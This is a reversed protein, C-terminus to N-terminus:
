SKLRRPVLDQVAHLEKITVYLNPGPEGATQERPMGWAGLAKQDVGRSALIQDGAIRHIQSLVPLTVLLKAVPGSADVNVQPGVPVGQRAHFPQGVDHQRRVVVADKILFLVRLSDPLSVLPNKTRLRAPHAPALVSKPESFNNSPRFSFVTSFRPPSLIPCVEEGLCTATALRMPVAMSHYSKKIKPVAAASTNLWNNKGCTLGRTPVRAAKAVKQAPKIARGTPPTIKPWKPSLTPRLAISTSVSSMM